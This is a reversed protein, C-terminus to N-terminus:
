LGGINKLNERTEHTQAHTTYILIVQVQQKGIFLIIKKKNFNYILLHKM